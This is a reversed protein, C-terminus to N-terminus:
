PADIYVPKLECLSSEDEQGPWWFLSGQYRTHKCRNKSFTCTIGLCSGSGWLHGTPQMPVHSSFLPIQKWTERALSIWLLCSKEAGQLHHRISYNCKYLSDHNNNQCPLSYPLGNITNTLVTLWPLNFKTQKSKRKFYPKGAYVLSAQM